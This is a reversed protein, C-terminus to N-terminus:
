TSIKKEGPLKSNILNIIEKLFRMIQDYGDNAAPKGVLRPGRTKKSEFSSLVGRVLEALTSVPSQSTSVHMETSKLQSTAPAPPQPAAAPM